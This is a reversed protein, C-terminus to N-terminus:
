KSFPTPINKTISFPPRYLSNTASSAATSMASVTELVASPWDVADSLTEAAWQGWQNLKYPTFPEIQGDRKIISELM